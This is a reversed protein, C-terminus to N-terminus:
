EIYLSLVRKTQSTVRAAHAAGFDELWLISDNDALILLTDRRRQEINEDCLLKKLKKSHPSGAPAYRDGARRTRLLANDTIIDCDLSDKFLIKFKKKNEESYVMETVRLHVTRGDPLAIEKEGDTPIIDGIRLEWEDRTQGAVPVAGVRVIGNEVSFRCGACIEVAGSGRLMCQEALEIHRHEPMRDACTSIIRMVARRRVAAPQEAIDKALWGSDCRAKECVDAATASLYEEDQRASQSLRRVADHFAPNISTLAPIVDHRIRNRTYATDANTSDTVYELGSEACYEEVDARTCLILPRILRSRVPPIGCLGAIGCGRAIDFLITEASDSLTHATAIACDYQESIYDFREYRCDRGCEELGLKRQAAIAPIDIRFVDLPVGLRECFAAAFRQDREAEAGRIMHNIHVARITLSYEPAISCLCHLLSVSDAGGSLGVAIVRSQPLMDYQEIALIVKQKLKSGTM